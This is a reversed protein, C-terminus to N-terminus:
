GIPGSAQEVQDAESVAYSIRSVIYLCPAVPQVRRRGIRLCITVGAQEAALGGRSRCRRPASLELDDV